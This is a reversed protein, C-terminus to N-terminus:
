FHLLFFFVGSWLSVPKLSNEERRCMGTVQWSSIKVVSAAIYKKFPTLYAGKRRWLFPSVHMGCLLRTLMASSTRASAATHKTVLALPASSWSCEPSSVQTTPMPGSKWARRLATVARPGTAAKELGNIEGSYFHTLFYDM